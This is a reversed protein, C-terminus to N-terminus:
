LTFYDAILVFPVLCDINSGDLVSGGSAGGVVAFPAGSVM